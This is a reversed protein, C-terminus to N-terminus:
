LTGRTKGLVRRRFRDGALALLEPTANLYKETGLIGDHGMYASLWPLRAHLDVGQRYWRTLRHVAFTARLDYPRPGVRGSTPKLGARRFLQRITESATNVRLAQRNKGVFFSDQPRVSAFARREVMYRELERALARSFPVWRSRGKSEAVFLLGSDIDVDQIRLRLPEGFRMGTCYLVLLLARYLHRRFPPRELDNVLHLLSKIDEVSLVHPIFDSTTPLRPWNPERIRARGPQRRLFKYLQRFVSVYQSTTFTKRDPKSAIWAFIAQGLNWTRRRQSYSSLFRDFSRLTFEARVYHCGLSRKFALFAELDTALPSTFETM